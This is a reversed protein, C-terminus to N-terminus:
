APCLFIWALLRLFLMRLFLLGGWSFCTTGSCSNSSFMDVGIGISEGVGAMRSIIAIIRKFGKRILWTVGVGVGVGVGTTKEVGVGIAVGVGVGVIEGVGVKGGADVAGLADSHSGQDGAQPFADNPITLNEASRDAPVPAHTSEDALGPRRRVRGNVYDVAM